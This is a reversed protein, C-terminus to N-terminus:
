GRMESVLRIFSRWLFDKINDGMIHIQRGPWGPERVIRGDWAVPLVGDFV